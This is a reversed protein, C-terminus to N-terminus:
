WRKWTNHQRNRMEFGPQFDDDDDDDNCNDRADERADKHLLGSDDGTRRVM